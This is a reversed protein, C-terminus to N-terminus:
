AVATPLTSSTQAKHWEITEELGQRFDKPKIGPVLKQLRDLCLAQQPIEKLTAPKSWRQARPPKDMLHCIWDVVEAITYTQGSGVNVAKGWPKVAMLETAYSVFDDIYIFERLFGEAGATIQPQEGRLLRTITNPILRSAHQDGPGFVNASRISFVPLRYNQHYARMIQAVCAKSAEYIGAPELAQTERYPTPGPGYAKDSEMLMIGKIRESQRAAELINATGMVNTQFCGLPDCRCNRVISKAALHYIQDIEMDVILELMRPFDKVDGPLHFYFGDFPPVRDHVLQHVRPSGDALLDNGLKASIASGLFGASGTVLINM